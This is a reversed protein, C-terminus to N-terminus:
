DSGKHVIASGATLEVFLRLGVGKKNEWLRGLQCPALVIFGAGIFLRPGSWSNRHVIAFEAKSEHAGTGPGSGESKESHKKLTVTRETNIVMTRKSVM